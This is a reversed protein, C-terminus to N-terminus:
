REKPDAKKGTSTDQKESSFPEISKRPIADELSVHIGHSECKQVSGNMIKILKPKHSLVAFGGIRLSLFSSSESTIIAEPGCYIGSMFGHVTTSNLSVLGYFEKPM